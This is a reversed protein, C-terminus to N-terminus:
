YNHDTSEEITAARFIHSVNAAVERRGAILRLGNHSELESSGRFCSRQFGCDPPHSLLLFDEISALWLKAM